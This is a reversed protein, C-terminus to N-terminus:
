SMEWVQRYRDLTENLKQEDLSKCENRPWWAGETEVSPPRAPKVNRIYALSYHNSKKNNLNLPVTKPLVEDDERPMLELRDPGCGM